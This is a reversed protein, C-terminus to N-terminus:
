AVRGRHASTVKVRLAPADRSMTFHAGRERLIRRFSQSTRRSWVGLFEEGSSDESLVYGGFLESFERQPIFQEVFCRRGQCVPHESRGDSYWSSKFEYIKEMDHSQPRVGLRLSRRQRAPDLTFPSHLTGGRVSRRPM